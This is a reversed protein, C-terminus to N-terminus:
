KLQQKLKEMGVERLDSDENTPLVIEVYWSHDEVTAPITTKAYVGCRPQPYPYYWRAYHHCAFAHTPFVLMVITLLGFNPKGMKGNKSMKTCGKFSSSKRM